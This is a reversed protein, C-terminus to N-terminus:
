LCKTLELKIKKFDPSPPTHQANIDELIDLTTKIFIKVDKKGLKTPVINMKLLETKEGKQNNKIKKDGYGPIRNILIDKENFNNDYNYEVEYLHSHIIANRVNNLEKFKKSETLANISEKNNLQQRKLTNIYSQLIIFCLIIISISFGNEFSSSRIKSTNEFDQAFLSNCLGQIPKLLQITIPTIEKYRTNM